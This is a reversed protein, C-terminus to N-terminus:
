LGVDRARREWDRQQALTRRTGKRRRPQPAEVPQFLEVLDPWRVFYYPGRQLIELGHRKALDHVTKPQTRKGPKVSPMRAAAEALSVWNELDNETAKPQQNM